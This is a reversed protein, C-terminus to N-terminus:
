FSQLGASVSFDSIVTLHSLLSRFCGQAFCHNGTVTFPSTSSFPVTSCVSLTCPVSVCKSAYPFDTVQELTDYYRTHQNMKVWPAQTRTTYEKFESDHITFYPRFDSCYRLPSICSCLSLSLIIIIKLSSVQWEINLVKKGLKIEDVDIFQLGAGSKFLHPSSPCWCRFVSSWMECTWFVWRVLALVTDSSEAPSPAMVVLAEGLLVLEWLM